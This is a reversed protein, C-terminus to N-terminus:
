IVTSAQIIGDVHKVLSLVYQLVREHVNNINIIQYGEIDKLGLDPCSICILYLKIETETWITTKQAM